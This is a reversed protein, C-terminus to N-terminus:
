CDSRRPALNYREAIEMEAALIESAWFWSEFGRQPRSWGNGGDWAYGLLVTMSDWEVVIHLPTPQDRGVIRMLGVSRLADPEFDATVEHFTAANEILDKHSIKRANTSSHSMTM